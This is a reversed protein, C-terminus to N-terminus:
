APLLGSKRYSGVLAGFLAVDPRSRAVTGPLAVRTLDFWRALLTERASPFPAAGVADSVGM